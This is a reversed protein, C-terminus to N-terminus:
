WKFPKEPTGQLRPTWGNDTENMVPSDIPEDKIQFSSSAEDDGFDQDKTEEESTISFKNDDTIFESPNQGDFSVIEELLSMDDDDENALTSSHQRMQQRAFKQAVDTKIPQLTKPAGNSRIAKNVQPKSQIPRVM